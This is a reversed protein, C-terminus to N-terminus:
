YNLEAALDHADRQTMDTGFQNDGVRTVYKRSKRDFVAYGKSTQVEQYRHETM